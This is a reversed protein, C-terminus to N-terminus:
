SELAKRAAALRTSLCLIDIAVSLEAVPPFSPAIRINSDDPDIGYPYTAGAPTLEVGCERCLRVVEKATGKCVFLSIFYGGRPVNWKAIGTNGLERKLIALVADFKPKLIREHKKMMEIVGATDKLFRVHRLQNIKDPGITQYTIHSRVYSINQVSSAVCAIGAGAWTIKSTSAFEYVRNDNGYSACLSIIDPISDRNEHLHHVFYSNDWMITFDRSATKMSAIRRCTEESYTIGDPNSYLPVCWIGRVSEDSGALQEVIDMDPGEPTMPVAIMQIGLSETLAFHRDYGPSPCLFTIKDEKSWPRVSDKMGFLMARAVTDYMMNLSSNGGVIVKDETIGLLGAFLSKAEPIGDLIGYNRCDFGTSDYIDSDLVCELMGDSLKLQEKCPKGRAMNLKNEQAKFALYQQELTRIEEQLQNKNMKSYSNM